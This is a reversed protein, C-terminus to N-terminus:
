EGQRGVLVTSCYLSHSFRSLSVSRFLSLHLLSHAHTCAHALTHTHTKRARRLCLNLCVHPQSQTRCTSLSSSSSPAWRIDQFPPLTLQQRRFNQPDLEPPASFSRYGDPPSNLDAPHPQTSFEAPGQEHQQQQQLPDLFLVSEELTPGSGSGSGARSHHSGKPVTCDGGAPSLVPAAM